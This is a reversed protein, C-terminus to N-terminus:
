QQGGRDDEVAELLAEYHRRTNVAVAGVTSVLAVRDSPNIIQATM